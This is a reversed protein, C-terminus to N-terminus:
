KLLIKMDLKLKKRQIKAPPPPILRVKALMWEKMQNLAAVPVISSMQSLYKFPNLVLIRLSLMWKEESKTSSITTDFDSPISVPIAEMKFPATLDWESYDDNSPLKEQDPWGYCFSTESDSSPNTTSEQDEIGNNPEIDHNVHEKCELCPLLDSKSCTRPKGELSISPPSPSNEHEFFSEMDAERSQCAIFMRSFLRGDQKHTKIAQKDKSVAKEKKNVFSDM